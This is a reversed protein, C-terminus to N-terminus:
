GNTIEKVLVDYDIKLCEIPDQELIGKVQANAIMSGIENYQEGKEVVEELKGYIEDWKENVQDLLENHENILQQIEKLKDEM